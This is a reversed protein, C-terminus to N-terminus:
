LFLRPDDGFRPVIATVGDKESAGEIRIDSQAESLKQLIGATWSYNLVDSLTGEPGGYSLDRPESQGFAIQIQALTSIVLSFIM